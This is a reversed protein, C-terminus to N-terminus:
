RITASLDQALAVAIQEHITDVEKDSLTRDFAQYEVHFALGKQDANAPEYEDFLDSDVVLEGGIREIIEQAQEVSVYVPVLFSIDRFVSPYRSFEKYRGVTQKKERIEKLTSPSAPRLEGHLTVLSLNLEVVAVPLRYKLKARINPHLYGVVGAIEGGVMIQRADALALHTIKESADIAVRTTERLQDLLNEYKSFFVAALYQQEEGEFSQRMSPSYVKGIEFLGGAKNTPKHFEGMNTYLNQLLGPVLSVRLNALDPAVPNLVTLHNEAQVGWLKAMKEPEFSYNYTETLGWGVLVDRLSEILIREEPLAQPTWEQEDFHSPISELGVMRIVEEVLDHEGEIDLRDTPATVQWVDKQSDDFTFRLRTLVEKVKAGDIPTGAVAGIREPHLSIPMATRPHPYWDLMGEITANGITKFLFALREAAQSIMNPDLGKAFRISAETRSGLRAATEQIRYSHFNAIELFINKTEGDTQTSAGGMVGALAVPTDDVTIVIDADSLTVLSDDLLSITEKGKALRVSITNGPLKDRDFAHSPNGIEFLVYNTLDVVASIPRAGMALLRRQVWLPSPGNSVGSFVLGMYRSSIATDKTSLSFGGAEQQAEPLSLTKPEQVALDLLAAVERAIGLHSLSDHARNPTVDAELIFDNEIHEVLKSGLPTDSPLIYIGSHDSGFGLERASNLMGPSKEGRIKAEKIVFPNGEQDIVTTGPPSYPVLQGASINSAGCVVRFEQQGDTVTALRLRDANPHPEVKEIRVITIAPDIKWREVVETEYSHLTLLESLEEPTAQLDPVLEKIWNYSIRM